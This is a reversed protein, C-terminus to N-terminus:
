PTIASGFDFAPLLNAAKADRESLPELGFRWEVFRLISVTEYRTSDVHGKRAWPSIVLAPVRNGPGWRDIKPPPVHDYFGGFDDYTVIVAMRPWQRSRQAEELLAIVARESDLISSQGPNDSYGSLPKYFGLAPFTGARLDAVLDTKDRLHRARAESGPGYAAFYVFPQWHTAFGKPAKGADALAWGESYWAWPIGKASLRDGITPQTQPPVRVDDPTGPEFPPNRPQLQDNAYGDPTVSGDRRLGVVQGSADLIPEARLKEPADPFRPMSASILWIHNVFSGGFASVFFNDLLTYQKAWPYLPLQTTDFYGMPLSGSDSWSVYGDLKGGAIQLVNWYFRHMPMELYATIPIYKQLPFPANPLDAPFRPDPKSKAGYGQLVPPLQAYPKGDRDVQPIAAGPSDLGNAGPFKGYLSDFSHNELYIVLLHDIPIKSPEPDAARAKPAAIALLALLAACRAGPFRGSGGRNRPPGDRAPALNHAMSGTKTALKSEWIPVSRM